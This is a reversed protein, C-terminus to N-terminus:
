NTWHYRAKKGSLNSLSLERSKLDTVPSSVSPCIVLANKVHGITLVDSVRNAYNRRKKCFLYTNKRGESFFTRGRIGDVTWVWM